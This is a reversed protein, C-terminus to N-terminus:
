TPLVTQDLRQAAIECYEESMEILICKRGLQKAAVGTTGSGAFPDLCVADPSPPYLLTLLYRMIELPKVTPHTNCFEPEEIGFLPLEEAPLNGRDKGSAKATYFFRSATGSDAHGREVAVARQSLQYTGRDDNPNDPTPPRVSSTSVGSQEDLMGVPCDPHCEWAEVTELGDADVYGCDAHPKAASGFHSVTQNAGRAYDGGKVKKVGVQRCEPHHQLLLNAPWRGKSDDGGLNQSATTFWPSSDGRKTPAPTKSAATGIRGGDVNLGAVGHALANDAFTGDLPKMALVIPEWAPKLATGYGDWLKAAETAPHSYVFESAKDAQACKSEGERVTRPVRSYVEREAGAAKDIAKSVDHSKPFGSGYLWMMCDRIEWGADEIGCTLRHYTRTGGFAALMAGPKCAPLIATFMEHFWTQMAHTDAGYTQPLSRKKFAGITHRDDVEPNANTWCLKDWEKGMFELGYPPDSCVLDVSGPELLPLIERCDGHYLTIGDRCECPQCGCRYCNPSESIGNADM